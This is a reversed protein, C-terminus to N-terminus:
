SLDRCISDFNSRNSLLQVIKFRSFKLFIKLNMSKQIKCIAWSLHKIGFVVKQSCSSFTLLWYVKFKMENRRTRRSWSSSLVSFNASDAPIEGDVLGPGYFRVIRNSFYYNEKDKDCDVFRSKRGTCYFNGKRFWHFDRSQVKSDFSDGSGRVRRGVIM